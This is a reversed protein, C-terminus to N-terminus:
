KVHKWTERRVVHGISTQTVGYVKGLAKQSMSGCDYLRRIEAVKEDTLKANFNREGSAKRKHFDMRNKMVMDVYNSKTTGLMLHHPNCCSPNDCVHCVMYGEPIPGNAFTFAARHATTHKGDISVNGYGKPKRAGVWEWCESIKNTVLVKSWFASEQETM